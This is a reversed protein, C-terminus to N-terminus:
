LTGPALSALHADSSGAGRKRGAAQENSQALMAAEVPSARAVPLVLADPLNGQKGKAIRTTLGTDPSTTQTPTAQDPQAPQHGPSPQISHLQGVSRMALPGNPSPQAPYLGPSPPSHPVLQAQRHPQADSAPDSPTSNPVRNSQRLPTANGGQQHMDLVPLLAGATDQDPEADSDSSSGLDSDDSSVSVVPSVPKGALADVLKQQVGPDPLQSAYAFIDQRLAQFQRLTDAVRPDCMNDLQGASDAAATDRAEAAADQTAGASRDMGEEAAEQTPSASPKRLDQKLKSISRPSAHALYGQLSGSAAASDPAQPAQPALQAQAATPARGAQSSRRPKARTDSAGKQPKSSRQATTSERAQDAPMSAPVSPAAAAAPASVATTATAPANAARDDQQSPLQSAPQKSLQAADAACHAAAHVAATGPTARATPVAAPPPAIATSAQVAPMYPQAAPTAPQAAATSAQAAAIPVQAAATAAQAAATAQLATVPTAGTAGTVQLATVGKQAEETQLALKTAETAQQKASPKAKHSRMRRPSPMPVLLPHQVELPSKGDAASQPHAAQSGNDSQLSQGPADQPRALKSPQAAQGLYPDAHTMQPGSTAGSPLGPGLHLEPQAQPLVQLLDAAWAPATAPHSTLQRRDPLQPLFAPLHAAAASTQPNSQHQADGAAPPGAIQPQQPLHPSLRSTRHLDPHSQLNTATQPSLLKPVSDTASQPNILLPNQSTTVQFQPHQGPQPSTMTQLGLQTLISTASAPLLLGQQNPILVTGLQPQTQSLDPTHDLDAVAPAMGVLIQRALQSTNHSPVVAHSNTPASASAGDTYLPQEPSKATAGVLRERSTGQPPAFSRPLRHTAVSATLSASTKRKSGSHVSAEPNVSM